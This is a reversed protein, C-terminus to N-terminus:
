GVGVGIPLFNHGSQCSINYGCVLSLGHMADSMKGNESSGMILALDCLINYRESNRKQNTTGNNYTMQKYM